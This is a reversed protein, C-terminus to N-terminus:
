GREDDKESVKTQVSGPEVKRGLGLNLKIKKAGESVKGLALRISPQKAVGDERAESLNGGAKNKASLRAMWEEDEDEDRQRKGPRNPGLVNNGLFSPSSPSPVKEQVPIMRAGRMDGVPVSGLVPIKIPKPVKARSNVNSVGNQLPSQTSKPQSPPKSNEANEESPSADEDEYDVLATSPPSNTPTPSPPFQRRRTPYEVIAPARKRKTGQTLKLQQQQMWATKPAGTEEEDSGNFWDEEEVDLGRGRDPQNLLTRPNDNAHQSFCM